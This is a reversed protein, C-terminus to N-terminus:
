MTPYLMESTIRARNRYWYWVRELIFLAGVGSITNTWVIGSPLLYLGQAILPFLGGALSGVFNIAHTTEAIAGRATRYMVAEATLVGLTTGTIALATAVLPNVIQGGKVTMGFAILGASAFLSSLAFALPLYPLLKISGRLVRKRLADREVKLFIYGAFSGLVTGAVITLFLLGAPGPTFHWDTIYKFTATFVPTLTTYLINMYGKMLASYIIPALMKWSFRLSKFPKNISFRM